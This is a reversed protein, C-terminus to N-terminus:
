ARAIDTNVTTRTLQFMANRMQTIGDRRWQQYVGRLVAETSSANTFASEDTLVYEPEIDSVSGLQECSALTASLIILM